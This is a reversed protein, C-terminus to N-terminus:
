FIKDNRSHEKRITREFNEVIDKRLPSIKRNTKFIM